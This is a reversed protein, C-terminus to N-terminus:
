AARFEHCHHTTNIGRSRIIDMDVDTSHLSGPVLIGLREKSMSMSLKKDKSGFEGEKEIGFLLWPHNLCNRYAFRRGLM